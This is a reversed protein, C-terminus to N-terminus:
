GALRKGGTVPQHGMGVIQLMSKHRISGYLKTGNVIVQSHNQGSIGFRYCVRGVSGAQTKVIQM